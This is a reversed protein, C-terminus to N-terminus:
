SVESDSINLLCVLLPSLFTIKNFTQIRNLSLKKFARCGLHAMPRRLILAEHDCETVVCWV